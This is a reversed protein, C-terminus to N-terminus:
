TPGGFFWFYGANYFVHLAISPTVRDYRDRFFGFILSPFFALTSWMLSHRALHALAFAVSTLLNAVSLGLQNKRGWNTNHLAGQVFGRFALEELVPFVLTLMLFDGPAQAPWAFDPSADKWLLLASWFLPAVILAAWFVQDKLIMYPIVERNPCTQRSAIRSARLATQSNWILSPCRLLAGALRLVFRSTIGYM